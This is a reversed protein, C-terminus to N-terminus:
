YCVKHKYSNYETIAMMQPDTQGLTIGNFPMWQVILKQWDNWYFQFGKSTIKLDSLINEISEQQRAKDLVTYTFGFSCNQIKIVYKELM